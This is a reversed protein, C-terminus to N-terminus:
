KSTMAELLLIRRKEAGDKVMDLAKQYDDELEKLKDHFMKGKELDEFHFSPRFTGQYSPIYALDRGEVWKGMGGLLYPYESYPWFFYTTEGVLNRKM